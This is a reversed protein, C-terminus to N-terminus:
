NAIGDTPQRFILRFDDNAHYLDLKVSINEGFFETKIAMEDSCGDENTM